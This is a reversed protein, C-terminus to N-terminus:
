CWARDRPRRRVTTEFCSRAALRRRSSVNPEPDFRAAREPRASLMHAKPFVRAHNGPAPNRTSGASPNRRNTDCRRRGCPIRVAALHAASSHPRFVGHRNRSEPWAFDSRTPSGTGRSQARKGPGPLLRNSKNSIIISNSPYEHTIRQCRNLRRFRRNRNDGFKDAAIKGGIRTGGLSRCYCVSQKRTM